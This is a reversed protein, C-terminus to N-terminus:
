MTQNARTQTYTTMTPKGCIKNKENWWDGAIDKVDIGNLM